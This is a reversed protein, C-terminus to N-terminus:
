RRKGVIARASAIGREAASATASLNESEPIGPIPPLHERRAIDWLRTWRDAAATWTGPLIEGVGYRVAVWFVARSSWADRGSTRRPLQEIAEAYAAEASLERVTM